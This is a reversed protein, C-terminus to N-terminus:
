GSANTFWTYPCTHATLPLIVATFPPLESFRICNTSTIWMRRTPAHDPNSAYFSSSKRSFPSLSALGALAALFAFGALDLVGSFGDFAFAAATSSSTSQDSDSLATLLIRLENSFSLSPSSSSAYLLAIFVNKFLPTFGFSTLLM